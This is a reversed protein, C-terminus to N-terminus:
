GDKGGVRGVRLQSRGTATAAPFFIMFYDSPLCDFLFLPCYVPLLLINIKIMMM